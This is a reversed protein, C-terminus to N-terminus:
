LCKIVELFAKAGSLGHTVYVDIGAANMLEHFLKQDGRLTGTSTKLEVWYTDGKLFVVRDPCGAMSPSAMKFCEGGMDRIAKRLKKEIASELMNDTPDNRRGLHIVEGKM